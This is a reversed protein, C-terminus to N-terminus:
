VVWCYLFAKSEHCFCLLLSAEGPLFHGSKHGDPSAGEEGQQGEHLSYLVM